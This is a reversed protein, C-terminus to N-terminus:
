VSSTSAMLGLEGPQREAVIHLYFGWRLPNQERRDTVYAV